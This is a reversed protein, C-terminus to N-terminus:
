HLVYSLLYYKKMNKMHIITLKNLTFTMEFTQPDDIEWYRWYLTYDVRVIVAHFSGVIIGKVSCMRM